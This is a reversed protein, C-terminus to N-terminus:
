SRAVQLQFCVEYPGLQDVGGEGSYCVAGAVCAGDPVGCKYGAPLSGLPVCTGQASGGGVECVLGDCKRHLNTRTTLDDNDYDYDHDDYHYDDDAYHYDDDAYHYDDYDYDYDDYYHYNDDNVLDYDHEATM